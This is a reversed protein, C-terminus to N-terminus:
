PLAAWEAALRELADEAEARTNFRQVPTAAIDIDDVFWGKYDQWARAVLVADVHCDITTLRSDVDTTPTLKGFPM